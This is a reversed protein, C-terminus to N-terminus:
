HEFHDRLHDILLRVKLPVFERHPYVIHIARGSHPQFADLLPVLDGSEVADKVLFRALRAIGLGRLAAERVVAGIGSLVSEVKITKELGDESFIWDATEVERARITLCRHSSLDAPVTPAGHAALYSPSACVVWPDDVLPVAVFDAHTPKEFRIALDIREDIVDVPGDGQLVTIGLDPYRALFPELLPVLVELAFADSCSVRINGRPSAAAQKSALEAQQIEELLNVGRSYLTEGAETLSLSRTTRNFLRAELRSEYGSIRRSVGSPTMNLRRAAGVFSGAAAVETFVQLDSPTEM